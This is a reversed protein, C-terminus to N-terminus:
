TARARTLPANILPASKLAHDGKVVVRINRFPAGKVFGNIIDICDLDVYSTASLDILATMGDPVRALAAQLQPKHMFYLNRRARVMVADGHEVYTIIGGTSRYIVFMMGVVLGILIGVLLDTFLIALVTVVFPVFQTLGQRYRTTFLSPKALKYGTAILVAALASLPILNLIAPVLAVSLLLWTGHLMTSLRSDAGSEVNASSRVIVSTVPLGGILGASINGIGQALLERNKDTVRRKPDIEDVAKVSLLSELSAVIALTLAASWVAPNTIMGADPFRFLGFFAAPSGALPVQVLHSEGIALAPAFAAFGANALVSFVVVVLPGPLLRLPGDKPKAKDWWFLFALSIAAILAAGWLFDTQLMAVLTTFTNGGDPQFFSFDGEFDGDYGVAHPIQKLILILGIAALMGTIVSGPVFEAIVGGRTLSFIIQLVGALVVALLFAEFSPLSTIAALVITTLGAAPGSVSLPSRSFAGVVIGGIIGSILGSFLPAGSALAVGLCLPLAVLAVVISAPVDQRWSALPGAKVPAANDDVVRKGEV